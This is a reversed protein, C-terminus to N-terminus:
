RTDRGRVRYRRDMRRSVDTKPQSLEMYSM